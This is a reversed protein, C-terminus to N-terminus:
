AAGGELEAPFEIDGAALGHEAILEAAKAAAEMAEAESCGRAVTRGLLQRIRDRIKDHDSM